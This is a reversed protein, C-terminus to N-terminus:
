RSDRGRLAIEANSWRMSAGAVLGLYRDVSGRIGEPHNSANFAAWPLLLKYIVAAHDTEELLASVEALLSMAYLWEADFPLAFFDDKALQALAHRAEATRGRRAGDLYVLVCRFFPRAPFRAALESIEPGVEELRGEFDDLTFKQM